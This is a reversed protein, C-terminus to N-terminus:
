QREFLEVHKGCAIEHNWAERLHEIYRASCEVPSLKEVDDAMRSAHEILHGTAAAVGYKQLRETLQSSLLWESQDNVRNIILLADRPTITGDGDIDTSIASVSDGQDPANLRNIM